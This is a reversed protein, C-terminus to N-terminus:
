EAIVVLWQQYGDHPRVALRGAEVARAAAAAARAWHMHTMEEFDDREFTVWCDGAGWDYMRQLLAAQEIDGECLDILAFPIVM